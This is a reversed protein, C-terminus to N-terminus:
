SWSSFLLYYNLKNKNVQTNPDAQIFTYILKIIYLVESKYNVSTRNQSPFLPYNNEGKPAGPVTFSVVPRGGGDGTKINVPSDRQRGLCRV